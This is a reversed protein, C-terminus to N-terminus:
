NVADGYRHVVANGSADNLFSRSVAAVRWLKDDYGFSLGVAGVDSLVKPLNTAMFTAGFVRQKDDTLEVGLAKVDATSMGWTLGFPAADKESQQAIAPAGFLLLLLITTLVRM